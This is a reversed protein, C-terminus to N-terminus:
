TSAAEAAACARRLDSRCGANLRLGGEYYLFAFLAGGLHATYAVNGPATSAGIADVAVFIVAAVWMPMPLFFMFLVTRYPFNFAFLIVVAVVGGSAGLM